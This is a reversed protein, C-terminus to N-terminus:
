LVMYGDRILVNELNGKTSGHNYIIGQTELLGDGDGTDLIVNKIRFFDIGSTDPDTQIQGVGNRRQLTMEALVCSNSLTVYYDSLGDDNPRLFTNFKNTGVLVRNDPITISSINYIGPTLLVETNSNLASQITSTYDEVSSNYTITFPQGKKAQYRLRAQSSWRMTGSPYTATVNETIVNPTFGTTCFYVQPASGNSAINVPSDFTCNKFIRIDSNSSPTDNVATRDVNFWNCDIYEVHECKVNDHLHVRQSSGFTDEYGINCNRFVIKDVTLKTGTISPFHTVGNRFDCGEAYVEGIDEAFIVTATHGEYAGDVGEIEGEVQFNILDIYKCTTLKIGPGSSASNPHPGAICNVFKIYRTPTNTRSVQYALPNIGLPDDESDLGNGRSSTAYCDYAEFWGNPNSNIEVRIGKFSYDEVRLNKCICGSVYVNFAAFHGGAIITTDEIYVPANCSMALTFNGIDDDYPFSDEEFQITCDNGIIISPVTISVPPILFPSGAPNLEIYGGAILANELEENTSVIAM